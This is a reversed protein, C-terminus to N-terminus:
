YEMKNVILEHQDLITQYFNEIGKETLRNFEECFLAELDQITQNARELSLRTNIYGQWQAIVSSNQSKATIVQIQARRM